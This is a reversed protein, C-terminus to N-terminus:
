RWSLVTSDPTGRRGKAPEEAPFGVTLMAAFELGDPTGLLRGLKAGERVLEGIWCTGLGLAEAALMFNQIAAGIAEHHKLECRFIGDDLTSSDLYVLVLCPATAIWDRYKSLASIERKLAGDESVVVFKWPQKNHASPAWNAAEILREITERDVAADWYGRVSRRSAIAALIGDM